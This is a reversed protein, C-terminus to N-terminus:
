FYFWLTSPVKDPLKPTYPLYFSFLIPDSFCSLRNHVTDGPCRSPGLSPTSCATLSASPGPHTQPDMCLCPGAMVESVAKQLPWWLPSMKNREWLHGSFARAGLSGQPQCHLHITQASWTCSECGTVEATRLSVWTLNWQAPSLASAWLPWAVQGLDRLFCYCWCWSLSGRRFGGRGVLEGMSSPATRGLLGWWVCVSVCLCVCVKGLGQRPCAVMGGVERSLGKETRGEEPWQLLRGRPGCVCLGAGCTSHMRRGLATKTNRHM